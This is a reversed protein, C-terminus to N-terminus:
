DTTPGSGEAPRFAAVIKAKVAPCDKDLVSLDEYGSEDSAHVYISYQGDTLDPLAHRKERLRDYQDVLRKEENSDPIYQDFKHAVGRLRVELHEMQRSTERNEAVLRAYEKATVLPSFQLAIEYQAAFSHELMYQEESEEEEASRGPANIMNVMRAPKQRQIVVSQNVVKASWGVPLLAALKDRTAQLDAPRVSSAVSGRTAPQSAAPQSTATGSRSCATSFVFLVLWLAFALGTWRNRTDNMEAREYLRLIDICIDYGTSGDLMRVIGM